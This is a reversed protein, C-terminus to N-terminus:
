ALLSITMEPCLRRLPRAGVKVGVKSLRLTRPPLAGDEGGATLARSQGAARMAPLLRIVASGLPDRCSM